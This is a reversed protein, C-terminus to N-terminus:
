NIIVPIGNSNVAIKEAYDWNFDLMGKEFFSVYSKTLETMISGFNDM